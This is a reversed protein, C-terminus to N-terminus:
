TFLAKDAPEIRYSAGDAALAIGAALQLLAVVLTSQLALYLVRHLLAPSLTSEVKCLVTFSLPCPMHKM